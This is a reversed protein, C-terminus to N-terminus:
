KDGLKKKYVKAYQIDRSSIGIKRAKAPSLIYETYGWFADVFIGEEEFSWGYQERAIVTLDQAQSITEQWHLRDRKFIHYLVVALKAPEKKQLCVMISENNIFEHYM